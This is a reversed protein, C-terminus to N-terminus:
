ISKVETGPSLQNFIQDANIKVTDTTFGTDCFVVRLPKHQALEKVLEESVGTDFCAIIDYPPQNVFFVSKGQILEKRIPLSLDVSLDLLVQFLLDEPTRGPKINNVATFLEEQKVADPTYYVEAMNSSDIKLVRFGIDKNWSSHITASLISSGSRRIREKGIETLIHPKGIEDLISITKEIISKTTGSATQISIDLDEPLQVM